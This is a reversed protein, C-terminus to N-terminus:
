AIPYRGAEQAVRFLTEINEPPVDAQINPSVALVYGGGPALERMRRRVEAELQTPTGHPLVEQQDVAGHLVLRKGFTRKIEAPNMGAASPQVPNLIDVGIEVLDELIPAIAGCSHLQFYVDALSKVHAILRALRPKVLRRWMRPSFLMNTQIGYDDGFFVIDIYDGAAKLAEQYFAEFYDTMKDLLLGAYDPDAAMDAYFTEHGRLSAVMEVLGGALPDLTVAAQREERAQRAQEALHRFRGPDRPNPWASTDVGASPAADKLPFDVMDYYYAARRWVVGWEDMFTHHADGSASEEFPMDATGVLNRALKVDPPGASIHAFDSGLHDLMRRSPRVVQTLLGGIVIEEEWGLHALLKRYAFQSISCLGGGVDIPVRDAEEHHLTALVRDRSTLSSM